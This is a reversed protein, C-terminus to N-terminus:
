APVSMRGFHSWTMCRSYDAIIIIIMVETFDDIFMHTNLVSIYTMHLGVNMVKKMVEVGSCM